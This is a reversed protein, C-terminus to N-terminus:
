LEVHKQDMILTVLFAPLMVCCLAAISILVLTELTM